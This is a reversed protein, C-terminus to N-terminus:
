STIEEFLNEDGGFFKMALEKLEAPDETAFVARRFGAAHRLGKAYWCLHKRWHWVAVRQPLYEFMMDFQTLATSCKEEPTPPPPVPKGAIAAAIERFIFPNGLAARGTMVGACGTERMMRVADEASSIDGNGIVPVNTVAVVKGIIDWRAKGRFGESVYRAHVVIADVGQGEAIKAIEIYVPTKEDWGARIKIMLPISVSRRMEALIRDILKVDKLLAGGCGSKLIKRVPCGANLDVADAGYDQAARAAEGLDNEDFGFLQAAYPRAEPRTKILSLTKRDKQTLGKASAMETVTLGAGMKAAIFRFAVDSIGAMPAALVRSSLKLAGIKLSNNM